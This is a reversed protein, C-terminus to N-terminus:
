SITDAESKVVLPKLIPKASLQGNQLYVAIVGGPQVLVKKQDGMLLHGVERVVSSHAVIMAPVGCEMFIHIAERICPDVRQRFQNLSEGGPIQCDPNKLYSQLLEVNEKSRKQGSLNGV